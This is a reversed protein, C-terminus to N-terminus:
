WRAERGEGINRRLSEAEEKVEGIMEAVEEM